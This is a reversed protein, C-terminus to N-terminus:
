NWCLSACNAVRTQFTVRKRGSGSEPFLAAKGHIKMTKEYKFASKQYLFCQCKRTYPTPNVINTNASIVTIIQSLTLQLQTSCISHFHSFASALPPFMLLFFRLLFLAFLTKFAIPAVPIISPPPPAQHSRQEPPPVPPAPSVTLYAPGPLRTRAAPSQWCTPYM